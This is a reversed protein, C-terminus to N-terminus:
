ITSAAAKELAEVSLAFAQTSKRSKRLLSLNLSGAQYVDYLNDYDDLATEYKTGTEGALANIETDRNFIDSYQELVSYYRVEYEM